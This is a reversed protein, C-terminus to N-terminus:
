RKKKVLTTAGSEHYDPDPHNRISKPKQIRTRIWANYTLFFRYFVYFINKKKLIKKILFM